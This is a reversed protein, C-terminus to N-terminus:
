TMISAAGILEAPFTVLSTKLMVMTFATRTNSHRAICVVIQQELICLVGGLLAFVCSLQKDQSGRSNGTSDIIQSANKSSLIQLMAKAEKETYLIAADTGNFPNYRAVYDNYEAEDWSKLCDSGNNCGAPRASAMPLSGVALMVVCLCLAMLHTSPSNM